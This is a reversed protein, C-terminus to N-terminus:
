NSFFVANFLVQVLYYGGFARLKGSVISVKVLPNNMKINLTNGVLLRVTSAFRTNTKMVQPPQKEIVFTSTILNMLLNTVETHLAPLYDPLNQEDANVQKKYKSALRIQERTNWITEALGECWGQIVDLSNVNMPSAGNGALGQNVKWQSLYKGLVKNQIQQTLNIVKRFNDVLELRKGTLQNLARNVREQQEATVKNKHDMYDQTKAMSELQATNKTIEHLELCFNEYEKHLNRNDNENSRVLIHCQQLNSMIEAIDTDQVIPCEDPYCSLQREFQLCNRLHAYLQGPNHSFLQRFSRASENLRIKSTILTDDIENAKRELETILQSLFNAADQEFQSDHEM